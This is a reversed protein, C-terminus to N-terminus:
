FYNVKDQIVPVTINVPVNRILTPFIHWKQINLSDEWKKLTKDYFTADLILVWQSGRLSGFIYLELVTFVTDEWLGRSLVFCGRAKNKNISIKMCWYCQKKRYYTM